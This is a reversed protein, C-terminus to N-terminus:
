INMEFRKGNKMKVIQILRFFIKLNICRLSSVRKQQCKLDKIFGNYSNTLIYYVESNLNEIKQLLLRKIDADDGSDASKVQHYLLIYGWLKYDRLFAEIKFLSREKSDGALISKEIELLKNIEDLSDYYGVREFPFLEDVKHKTDSISYYLGTDQREIISKLMDFHKEYIHLSGSQHMYEGPSYVLDAALMKQISTFAIVDYPLGLIIDTSRMTAICNLKMGRIFFQLAITCPVDPSTLPVAESKIHMVARRSSPDNKLEKVISDYQSHDVDRPVPHNRDSFILHGYSSNAIGGDSIANWFPAYTAIFSTRNSGSIYWLLEAICYVLSFKREPTHPFVSNRTIDKLVFTEGLLEQIKLNRPSSTIGSEYLKRLLSEYAESFTNYVNGSSNKALIRM